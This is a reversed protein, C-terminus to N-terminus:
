QDNVETQWNTAQIESDIARYSVYLEDLTNQLKDTDLVCLNKLPKNETSQIYHYPSSAKRNLLNEILDKHFGIQKSVIDRHVLAASITMGNRLITTDNAKNILNIIKENRTLTELYKTYNSEVNANPEDTELYIADRKIRNALDALKSQNTSRENILEALKKM